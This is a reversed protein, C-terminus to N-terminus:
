PAKHCTACMSDTRGAHDAPLAPSTMNAHCSLCTTRGTHDAPQPMPGSTSSSTSAATPSGTAAPTGDTPMATSQSAPASGTQHCTSCMADTRGAHDAPLAPGVGNAHCGLCITRGAHDAPLSIAGSGNSSAPVAAPSANAGPASAVPTATPTASSPQHCTRCTTDTRGAHDAPLAPGVGNAHCSLCTTRGAHDAPLAPMGGAAPTAAGVLKHCATCTSDARGAHDAPLAPGVGNAHCALCATRGAHDAPMLAPTPVSTPSAGPVSTPTATIPVYIPVTPQPHRAVTELAGVQYTAAFYLGLLMIVSAFAAVPIFVRERQKIVQQAPRADTKGQTIQEFELAHDEEMQHKSVKGTFMARSFEKVHVSYFHWLIVALVALLAEAGHATKAAPILDGSIFRTFTIPNWMAFGTIAMIIIGWILAWYEAKEVFNYRGLKPQEKTLGLNYRVSDLADLVDDLRPFMTWRVRLVFVKYAVVVIHYIGVLILVIAATHHITRVTEIGGLMGILAEALDNGAFEQPIGTLALLTFSLVLVWHELRQSLTFRLYEKQEAM